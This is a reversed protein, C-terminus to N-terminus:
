VASLKFLRSPNETPPTSSACLKPSRLKDRNRGVIRMPPLSIQNEHFGVRRCSATSLNKRPHTSSFPFRVGGGSFAITTFAFQRSLGHNGGTNSSSRCSSFFNYG